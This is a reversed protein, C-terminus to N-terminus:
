LPGSVGLTIMSVEDILAAFRAGFLILHHNNMILRAAIVTIPTKM